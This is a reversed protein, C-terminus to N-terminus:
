PSANECSESVHKSYPHFVVSKVSQYMKQTTVVNLSHLTKHAFWAGAKM